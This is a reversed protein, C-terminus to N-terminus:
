DGSAPLFCRVLPTLEGSFIDGEYEVWVVADGLRNPRKIVAEDPVFLWEQGVKVRYFGADTNRSVAEAKRAGAPGGCCIGQEDTLSKIWTKMEPSVPGAQRTNGAHLTANSLSLGIAMLVSCCGSVAPRRIHRLNRIADFM